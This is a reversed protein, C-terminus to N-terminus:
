VTRIKFMAKRARKRSYSGLGERNGKEFTTILEPADKLSMHIDKGGGWNLDM